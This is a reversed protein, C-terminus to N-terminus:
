CDEQKGQHRVAHSPGGEAQSGCQRCWTAAFLIRLPTPHTVLSLRALHEQTSWLCLRSCACM